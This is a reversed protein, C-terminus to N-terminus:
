ARYKRDLIVSHKRDSSGERKHVYLQRMNLSNNQHSNKSYISRSCVLSSVSNFARLWCFDVSSTSSPFSSCSACTHLCLVSLGGKNRETKRTRELERESQGDAYGAHPVIDLWMLFIVHFSFALMFLLQNTHLTDVWSSVFIPFWLKSLLIDTHKFFCVAKKLIRPSRDVTFKLRRLWDNTGAFATLMVWRECWRNGVYLNGTCLPKDGGGGLWCLSDTNLGLVRDNRLIYINGFYFLVFKYPWEFSPCRGGGGVVM